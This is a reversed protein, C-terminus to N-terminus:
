NILKIGAFVTRLGNNIKKRLWGYNEYNILRAWLWTRLWLGGRYTKGCKSCTFIYGMRKIYTGGIMRGCCSIWKEGYEM